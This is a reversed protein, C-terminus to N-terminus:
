YFFVPAFIRTFHLYSQDADDQFGVHHGGNKECIEVPFRNFFIEVLNSCFRPFQFSCRVEKLGEDARRSSERERQTVASEDTNSGSSCSSVPRPKPWALYLRHNMCWPLQLQCRSRDSETEGRVVVLWQLKSSRAFSWKLSGPSFLKKALCCRFRASSVMSVPACSM